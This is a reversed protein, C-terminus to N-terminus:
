NETFLEYTDLGDKTICHKVVNYFQINRCAKDLTNKEKLHKFLKEFTWKQNVDIEFSQCFTKTGAECNGTEISDQFSIETEFNELLLQQIEKGELKRKYIEAKRTKTKLLKQCEKIKEQLNEFVSFQGLDYNDIENEAFMTYNCGERKYFVGEGNGFWGNIEGKIKYPNNEFVKDIHGYKNIHVYDNIYKCIKIKQYLYLYDDPHTIPTIKNDPSKRIFDCANVGTLHCPNYFYWEDKITNFEAASSFYFYEYVMKKPEYTGWDKYIQELDIINNGIFPFFAVVKWGDSIVCPHTTRTDNGNSFPIYINFKCNTHVEIIQNCDTRYSGIEILDGINTNLYGAGSRGSCSTYYQKGGYTVHLRERDDTNGYNFTKKSSLSYLMTCKQGSFECNIRTM